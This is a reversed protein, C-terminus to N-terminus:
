KLKLFWNLVMEENGFIECSEDVLLDNFGLKFLM